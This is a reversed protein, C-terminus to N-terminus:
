DKVKLTDTKIIEISMNGFMRKEHEKQFKIFEEVSDFEIYNNIMKNDFTFSSSKSRLLREMKLAVVTKNENYKKLFFSDLRKNIFYLKLSDEIILCLELEKKISSSYKIISIENGKLDFKEIIRNLYIDNKLSDNDIQAYCNCFSIYVVFIMIKRLM